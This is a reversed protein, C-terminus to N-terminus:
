FHKCTKPAATASSTVHSSPLRTSSLCASVHLKMALLSRKRLSRLKLEGAYHVAVHKNIIDAAAEEQSSNVPSFVGSVVLSTYGAKLAKDTVKHIQETSLPSIETGGDFEYGGTAM